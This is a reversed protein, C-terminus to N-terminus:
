QLLLSPGFLKNETLVFVLLTLSNLSFFTCGASSQGDTERLAELELPISIQNRGINNKAHTANM